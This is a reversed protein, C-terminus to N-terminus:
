QPSDTRISTTQTALADVDDTLVHTASTSSNASHSKAITPKGAPVKPRVLLGSDYPWDQGYEPNEKVLHDIMERRSNIPQPGGERRVVQGFMELQSTKDNCLGLLGVSILLLCAVLLGGVTSANTALVASSYVLLTGFAVMFDEWDKPDSLWQGATVRKLDDVTGQMRVYRDQSLLILMDGRVGPEKGGKPGRWGRTLRRRIVVVNMTRALALLGMVGLAWWDHIIGLLTAVIITLVLGLAYLASAAHNTSNIPPVLYLSPLNASNVSLDKTNYPLQPIPMGNSDVDAKEPVLSSSTRGSTTIPTDVPKVEVTPKVEVAPKVEVNTLHGTCSIRQLFSVTAQNEIRFKYGNTMMITEPHEGQNVESANQQRHIGPALFLIDTYHAAGTLVTRIAITQLDALAILGSASLRISGISTKTFM